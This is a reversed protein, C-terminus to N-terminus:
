SSALSSPHPVLPPSSTIAPRFHGKETPREHQHGLLPIGSVMTYIYIPSNAVVSSLNFLRTHQKSSIPILFSSPPLQLTQLTQGVATTTRAVTVGTAQKSYM